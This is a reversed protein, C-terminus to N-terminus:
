EQLHWYVMVNKGYLKKYEEPYKPATNLTQIFQQNEISLDNTAALKATNTQELAQFNEQEGNEFNISLVESTSIIYLPGDLNSFKKYQIESKSIQNIKSLITKGDKLVIVDQAFSSLSFLTCALLVVIFRTIKKM